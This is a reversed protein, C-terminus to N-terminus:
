HTGNNQGSTETVDNCVLNGDLYIECSGLRNKLKLLDDYQFNTNAFSLCELTTMKAFVDLQEHLFRCNVFQLNILNMPVLNSLDKDSVSDMHLILIVLEKCNVLKSSWNEPFSSDSITLSRLHYLDAFCDWANDATSLRSIKCDTYGTTCFLSSFWGPFNGDSPVGKVGYMGNPGIPDEFGNLQIAQRQQLLKQAKNHSVSTVRM